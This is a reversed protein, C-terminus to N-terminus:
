NPTAATNARWRAVQHKIKLSDDSAVVVENMHRVSAIGHPKTDIM